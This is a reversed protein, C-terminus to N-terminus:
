PSSKVTSHGVPEPALLQGEVLDGALDGVPQGPREQAPRVAAPREVAPLWINWSSGCQRSRM